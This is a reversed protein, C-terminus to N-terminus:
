SVLTVMSALTMAGELESFAAEPNAIAGAVVFRRGDNREFWWAGAVVGPESGGKFRITPFRERDFPLGQGPNAELIEAVPELGPREALEALHILTLCLDGPTAYWEIDLDRPETIPVGDANVLDVADPDDIWGLVQADLEDLLARRGAEDLTRYAAAGPGDAVFKITFLNGTSLLPRNADQDSVGIRDLAAEVNDRGLHALLHDTATNDSIAIMQLALDFLSATTGADREFFVGDPSSKLNDVIEIEDEWTTSGTDIQHALEALIWLKFASGVPVAEDGRVDVQADCRGDTVDYVGAASIPGLAALASDAEAATLPTFAAPQLLLGIIKHPQAPTVAIDITFRQEDGDVVVATGVTEAPDGPDFREVTLPPSTDTYVAQTIAILQQAPVAALFDPDFREDVDSETLTGGDNISAIFWDLQSAAPKDSAVL